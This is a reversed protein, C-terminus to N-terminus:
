SIPFRSRIRRILAELGETIVRHLPTALVYSLVFGAVSVAGVLDDSLWHGGGILRPVSFVVASIWAILAYRRPLYFTFVGACILLVTAHDGPFVVSGTDKTPLNPLLESLRVADPYVLTPSKRGILAAVAEAIQKGAVVMGTLLLGWAISHDIQAWRRRAAHHAWLAVFTLASVVDIMRNNAIAWFVQWGRATLLSDNVAFFFWDDVAMWLSRTPEVFWSVLLVVCSGCGIAFAVPHWDNTRDTDTKVM